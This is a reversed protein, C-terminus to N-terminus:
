KKNRKVEILPSDKRESTAYIATGDVSYCVAEGAKRQGLEVPIASQKWIDDFNAGDPLDFEYARSYDCIVLHRGDPSIDGGTLFGNPIAPVSLEGVREATVPEASGFEVAVRYVGAPGSVRKTIVYIVGTQPQVLLTEADQNFDPYRFAGSEAPETALPRNRDSSANEPVVIPEAVKYITHESRQAKNDGIEGIYLYCRGANDKYAAIDEWDINETNTVKWTGLRKGDLGIAIVFPENGSDNHTWLVGSQCRSAALGSSEPIEKSDLEGLVAPPGYKSRVQATDPRSSVFACGISLAGFTSAM